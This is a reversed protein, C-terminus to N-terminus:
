RPPRTSARRATWALERQLRRWADLRRPPLRGAGLAALVECGPERDHRCDGFRCHEALAHVDAFVRALGEDGAPTGAALGVGRLGPTDIVSGGGPLPVLERRVSTHRGRGDARISRETLVTTGVLANVLSSKGAGSSGLLALTGANGVLTRVADIGAGTATSCVLVEVGPAQEGLEVALEHADRVLDAKALVLVPRAGSGWAVSLLREIKAIGPDPVLGVVVAVVTANAALLQSHSGGSPTARVLTTRRPLVQELTTRLDAWQRLRVWDGAVPAETPEAAVRDLLSGGLGVRVPGAATLVSSLGRDIRTVRGPLDLVPADAAPAGAAPADVAPALDAAAWAADWGADWGLRM